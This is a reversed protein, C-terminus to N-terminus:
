VSELEKKEVFYNQPLECVGDPCDLSLFEDASMQQNSGGKHQAILEDWQERPIPQIPEDERSGFRYVTTGKLHPLYKLWTDGFADRPFDTALNITKSVANDVHKQVTKQMRFHGEVSVDIASQALEPYKYFSEEVVLERTLDREGQANPKYFNRWYVPPAHPELGSSCAGVSRIVEDNSIFQGETLMSTTGTPAVMLLACNRIGHERIKNRIGRKLTKAFGSNLFAPDYAPFPDKEIALNISADYATNKITNFLRDVFEFAEDSDYKMGLELLMTHLGMVGLGIRRVNECNEKIEALPYHNIDLVNDLFRVALRVTEDLADWDFEDNDVFRPLVLSGLDCCGYEELWIEGCNHVYLGNADFAHVDSVTVDYVDEKGIYELSEFTVAFPKQYFGRTMQKKLSNFKNTKDTNVFGVYKMYRDCDSTIILRWNTKTEYEKYGGHGDPMSRPGAERAMNIKSRIGMRLLMRQIDALFEYNSQSLRISIGGELPSGEIHGDTDFLGRLFGAYFASSATQITDSITKTGGVELYDSISTVDSRFYAGSAQRKWDGGIFKRVAKEGETEGWSCLRARNYDWTGDGLFHGVWIVKM